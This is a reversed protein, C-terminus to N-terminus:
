EIGPLVRRSGRRSCLGAKSGGAQGWPIGQQKGGPIKLDRLNNNAEPPKTYHGRLGPRSVPVVLAPLPPRDPNAAATPGGATLHRRLPSIIPIFTAFFYM